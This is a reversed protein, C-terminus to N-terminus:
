FKRRKIHERENEPRCRRENVIKYMMRRRSLKLIRSYRSILKISDFRVLAHKIIRGAAQKDLSLNERKSESSSEASKIKEFYQKVRTLERFVPHEKANVGKLRLYAVM